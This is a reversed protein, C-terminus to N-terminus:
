RVINVEPVLRIGFKNEVDSTINEVLRLIDNGSANGHNVIVLPQKEYTGAEGLKKGKWGCHEILWAAPIKKSGATGPYSPIDPYEHLLSQFEEAPIIPNKFFSGANALEAPDPLKSRRIQIIAERLTNIDQKEKTSMLEGVNQYSMNLRPQKSLKFVVSTIICKDKWGHKFISDRYRFNCSENEFVLKQGTLLDMALVREITQSVEVGYAGINQVPSSGVSGPILSLNEIGGFGWNTAWGVFDDWNEGAGAQILVSDGDESIIEKGMIVPRIILGEFDGIFLINSGEGIVLNKQKKFRSDQIISGVDANSHCEYYYSANVDLRFANLQRLSYHQQIESMAATM